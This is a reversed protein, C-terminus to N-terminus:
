FGFGPIRWIRVRLRFNLATSSHEPCTLHPRQHAEHSHCTMIEECWCPIFKTQSGKEERAPHAHTHLLNPTPAESGQSQQDGKITESLVFANEQSYKLAWDGIEPVALVSAQIVVLLAELEQTAITRHLGRCNWNEICEMKHGPGQSTKRAESPTRSM